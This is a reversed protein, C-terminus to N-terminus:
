QIQIWGMWGRKARSRLQQKSSRSTKLVSLCQACGICREVDITRVMIGQVPAGDQEKVKTVICLSRTINILGKADIRTECGRQHRLRNDGQVGAVGRLSVLQVVSREFAFRPHNM